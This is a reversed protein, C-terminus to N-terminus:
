KVPYDVLRSIKRLTKRRFDERRAGYHFRRHCTPCTAIANDISDPGGEALPRIHHVELYPEANERVFPASADCGECRGKAMLLVWAVVNPDRIFRTTMCEIRHGSNPNLQPPTALSIKSTASRVRTQFEDPDATPQEPTGVRGWVANIIQLLEPTVAFGVNPLPPYRAITDLGLSLLLYTINQMRPEYSTMARGEIFTVVTEKEIKKLIENTRVKSEEETLDPSLDEIEVLATRYAHVCARLEEDTWLLRKKKANGAEISVSTEWASRKWRETSRM